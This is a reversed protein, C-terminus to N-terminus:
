EHEYAERMLDEAQRIAELGNELCQVSCYQGVWRYPKRTVSNFWRPVGVTLHYWGYPHGDPEPHRVEVQRQCSKCIIAKVGPAPEAM